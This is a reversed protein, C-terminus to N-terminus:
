IVFLDTLKPVLFIGILATAVGAVVLKVGSAKAGANEGTYADLLSILGWVTLGAGLFIVIKTLM